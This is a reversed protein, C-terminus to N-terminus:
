TNSPPPPPPTPSAMLPPPPPPPTDLAVTGQYGAFRRDGVFFDRLHKRQELFSDYNAAIISGLLSSTNQPRCSAAYINEKISNHADSFAQFIRPIEKTGGSIDNDPNNPDIISLRTGKNANYIGRLNKYFYGPPDFQIGVTGADFRSGYLDFFDMLVSGLNPEGVGRPLHQLISTVLCIISFGGLGGTSVDNLGRILLFQKIISAIVPMAPYDEKWAKFTDIAALGSSNDFSLDVKLGTLSDVFKIIPVRAHAITEISGPIAVGLGRLYEAFSYIDRVKQCISKRSSSMFQRSLLVLDMDATPLYLGSAFSGFAYLKAGYFRQGFYSQLRSILDRRVIDEYETPKVWHYFDLIEKHLKTGVHLASSDSRNFWPTPDQGGRSRWIDLPSGDANFFKPGKKGRKVTGTIEDDRNRKRNGLASDSRELGAARPGSPANEPPMNLDPEEAGLSIFDDNSVVPNSAETTALVTPTIRAKRILKVFDRKKGQREEEPPLVTYPDPNSWKPAPPATEPEREIARKKRPPQASEDQEDHGDASSVDMEAEESDTLDELALFKKAPAENDPDGIFEPTTERKARLLPRTSPTARFTFEHHHQRGGRRGHGRGDRERRGDGNGNGRFVYPQSM